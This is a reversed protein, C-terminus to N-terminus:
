GSDIGTTEKADKDEKGIVGISKSSVPELREAPPDDDDMHGNPMAENPTPDVIEKMKIAVSAEEM